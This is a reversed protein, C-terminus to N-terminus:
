GEKKEGNQISDAMGSFLNELSKLQPVIKQHVHALQMLRSHYVRAEEQALMLERQLQQVIRQWYALEDAQTNTEM